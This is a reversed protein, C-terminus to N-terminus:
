PASADEGLDAFTSVSEVLEGYREAALRGRVLEIRLFLLYTLLVDRRCYRHIEDLCGGDWLEQVRSGEIRGKGPHGIMRLLVDLGGRLRYSGGRTLFDYLDYHEGDDAADRWGGFYRPASCGYRLAALEMVPLDFNRGNFSVWRGRFEEIRTWFARVLTEEGSADGALTEITELGHEANVSAIAVSIPVHFALPAFDRGRDEFAARRFEEYAGDDDLGRGRFLVQNLLRKDIRTEIDFVAVSM